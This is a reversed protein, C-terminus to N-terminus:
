LRTRIRGIATRVGSRRPFCGTRKSLEGIRMPIGKVKFMHQIHLMSRGTPFGKSLLTKSQETSIQVGLCTPGICYENAVIHEM